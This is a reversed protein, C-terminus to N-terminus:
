KKTLYRVIGYFGELNYGDVETAKTVQKDAPPPFGEMLGLEAATAYKDEAVIPTSVTVAGLGLAFMWVGSTRAVLNMNRKVYSM